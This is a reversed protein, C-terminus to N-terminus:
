EAKMVILPDIRSARRAPAYSALLAVTLLVLSAGGLVVPDAASAGHRLAGLQRSALLSAVLGVSLGAGALRLTRSVVLWRVAGPEAGLAMRVGLEQRRANVLRAMVGHLGIAALLLALGGFFGLARTATVERAVSRAGVVTMPQIASVPAQPHIDRIAQRVAAALHGPEGDTRVVISMADVSFRSPQALPRYMEPGAAVAIGEQPVDTAIGVITM